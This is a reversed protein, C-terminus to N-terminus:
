SGKTPPEVKVSLRKLIGDATSDNINFLAVLLVGVTTAIIAGTCKATWSGLGILPTILYLEYGVLFTVWSYHMLMMPTQWLFLLWWSVRLEPAGPVQEDESYKLKEPVLVTLMATRTQTNVDGEKPIQALLREHSSSVLSMISFFLSCNWAVRALWFAEVVDPWSKAGIVAAASLTAARQVFRLELEKVKRFESLLERVVPDDHQHTEIASIPDITYIHLSKTYTFTFLLGIYKRATAAMKMRM